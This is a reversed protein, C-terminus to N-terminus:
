TKIELRNTMQAGKLRLSQLARLFGVCQLRFRDLGFHARLSDPWILTYVSRSCRTLRGRHLQIPYCSSYDGSLSVSDLIFAIVTM